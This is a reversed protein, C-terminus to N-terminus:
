RVGGWGMKCSCYLGLFCGRAFLRKTREPGVKEAEGACASLLQHSPLTLTSFLVSM